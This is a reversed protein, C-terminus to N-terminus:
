EEGQNTVVSDVESTAAENESSDTQEIDSSDMGEEESPEMEEQASADDALGKNITDYFAQLTVDDEKLEANKQEVLKYIDQIDQDGKVKDIFATVDESWDDNDILYSDGKSVIYYTVIDYPSSHVGAISLNAVVFAVYSGEEPGDKTYVTINDYGTIFQAMRQLSEDSYYESADTVMNQLTLNDCDIIATYYTEFFINLEKNVDKEYPVITDHEENVDIEQELVTEKVAENQAATSTKEKEGHKIFPIGIMCYALICCLIFLSWGLALKLKPNVYITDNGVNVESERLHFDEYFDSLKDFFNKKM